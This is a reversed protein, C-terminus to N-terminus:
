RKKGPGDRSPGSGRSYGKPFANTRLPPMLFTEVVTKSTVPNEGTAKVEM